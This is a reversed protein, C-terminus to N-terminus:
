IGLTGNRGAAGPREPHPCFVMLCRKAADSTPSHLSFPPAHTPTLLRGWKHHNSPVLSERALWGSTMSRECRLREGVLFGGGIVAKSAGNRTLRRKVLRVVLKELGGVPVGLIARTKVM